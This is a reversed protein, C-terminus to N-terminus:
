VCNCIWLGAFFNIRCFFNLGAFIYDQVFFFINKFDWLFDGFFILRCLSFYILFGM